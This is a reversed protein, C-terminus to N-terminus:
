IDKRNLGYTRIVPLIALIGTNPLNFDGIIDQSIEVIKDVLVDDEVISFITRNSFEEGSFFNELSPFLPIDDMLSRKKRHRELGTSALITVGKVGANEWANLVAECFGPDHLVLLILYM